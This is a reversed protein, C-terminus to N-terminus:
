DPDKVCRVSRYASKDADIIHIRSEATSLIRAYAETPSVESAWFHAVTGLDGFTHKWPELADDGFRVGAPLASFGVSNIAGTNPAEWRITDKLIGGQNTGVYYHQGIPQYEEPSVGLYIELEQWDEHTPLHWGEPCCNIATYWDYLRGYIESYQSSDDSYYRSGTPTYYNLNEAMWWQDGIKVTKYVQGDREDIFTGTEIFKGKLTNKQTNEGCSFFACNITLLITLSILTKRM